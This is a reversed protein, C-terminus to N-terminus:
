RAAPDCAVNGQCLRCDVYQDQGTLCPQTIASGGSSSSALCNPQTMQSEDDSGDPFTVLCGFCADIPFAVEGSEIHTDGTTTGFLKVYSILRKTGFNNAIDARVANAATPSVLTTAFAAIGATGGSSPPVFGDGPVTYNDLTAGAADTVRVIAGQLIVNDTEVRDLSGNGQVVMQNGILLTPIYQDSFAVDMTGYSLFPGIINATYACTGGTAIPPSLIGIIVLSGDNDVCSTASLAAVAAGVVAGVIRRKTLAM